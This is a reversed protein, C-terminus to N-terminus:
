KIEVVTVDSDILIENSYDLKKGMSTIYETSATGNWYNILLPEEELIAGFYNGAFSTSLYSIVEYNHRSILTHGTADLVYVSKTPNGLSYGTSIADNDFAFVCDLRSVSTPSHKVRLHEMYYEFAIAIPTCKGHIYDKWTGKGITGGIPYLGAPDVRVIM